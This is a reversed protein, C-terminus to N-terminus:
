QPARRMRRSITAYGIKEYFSMAETNFEYVGLQVEEIEHEDAWQHVREMLAEGIGQRRHSEQIVLSSVFLYSRAVMPPEDTRVNFHVFGVIAENLEAVLLHENEDQVINSVFQEIAPLDPFAHLCPLAQHHLEAGNALLHSISKHDSAQAEKIVPRMFKVKARLWAV